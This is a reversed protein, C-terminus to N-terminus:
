KGKSAIPVHMTTRDLCRRELSFNAASCFPVPTPRIVAAPRTPGRSAGSDLCFIASSVFVDRLHLM